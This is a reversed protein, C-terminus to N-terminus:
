NKYNVKTGLFLLIPVPHFYPFPYLARKVSPMPGWPSLGARSVFLLLPRRRLLTASLHPATTPRSTMQQTHITIETAYYQM